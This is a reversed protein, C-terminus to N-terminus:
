SSNEARRKRCLMWIVTEADYLAFYLDQYTNISQNNVKVIRDGEKLGQNIANSDKIVEGVIPEVVSQATAAVIFVAIFAFIFNM